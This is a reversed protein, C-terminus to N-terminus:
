KTKLNLMEKLNSETLDIIEDALERLERAVSNRSPTAIVVRCGLDQTAQLAGALDQDGSILVATDFIQKGAFRVMDLAILTDVGKQKRDPRFEWHKDFEQFFQATEIGLGNATRRLADRLASVYSPKQETIHGLRMQVGPTAALAAFYKSQGPYNEHDPRFAGDYWYARLFETQSWHAKEKENTGALQKCWNVVGQADLRTVDKKWKLSVAGQAKLYGADFCIDM